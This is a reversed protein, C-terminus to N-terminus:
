PPLRFACVMTKKVHAAHPALRTEDLMYSRSAALREPRVRVLTRRNRRRIEFAANHCNLINPEVNTDFWIERSCGGLAHFRLRSLACVDFSQNHTFELYLTRSHYELLAFAYPKRKQRCLKLRWLTGLRSRLTRRCEAGDACVRPISPVPRHERVYQWLITRAGTFDLPELRQCIVTPVPTCIKSCCSTLLL